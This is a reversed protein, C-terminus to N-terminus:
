LSGHICIPMCHFDDNWSSLLVKLIAPHRCESCGASALNCEMRHQTGAVAQCHEPKNAVNGAQALTQTMIWWSAKIQMVPDKHAIQRAPAVWRSPRGLKCADSM